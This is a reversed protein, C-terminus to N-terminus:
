IQMKNKEDTAVKRKFGNKRSLRNCAADTIM